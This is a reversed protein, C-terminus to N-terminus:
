KMGEALNPRPAGIGAKAFLEQFRRQWTHDRRARRLGAEGLKAAAVTNALYFRAKDILESPERYTEIERGLEYFERIEETYGTLYCVGCMPGEFDRLRVHPILRSGPRGDAWVNSLNLCVQYRGFVDAIQTFPIGGLAHPAFMPALQRSERRYKWQRAVRRGGGALGERRVADWASSAYAMVSGARYTRRGLYNSIAEGGPVSVAAGWGPGYIDVPVGAELLRAMWRDRDAYKQGVFVLKSERLGGAASRHYVHPDAGMQVWIPNAGVSLYSERADREAHWSFDVCKAIAAVYDFQYISNCYFNISPIGIRRLEGFGAPDFHANYFYSLFLDVPGTRVAERVEHLIRETTRARIEQEQPTFRDAIHMFRSAPLLDTQSEVLNHGLDRLAPYFNASWLGGYYFRPDSSHRVATFIRM